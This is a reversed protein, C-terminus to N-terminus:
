AKGPTHLMRELAPGMEPDRFSFGTATLKEPIARCSVLLMENAMQGLALHLAFAPASLIAPRKLASALARTLETNRVPNPAVVNVPGKLTEEEVIHFVAALLDSLAVWSMWERGNGLKAGLGLRFLPLMQKLAGGFPTFVVGFRMHVVRIGAISAPATAHEWAECVESLFGKGAPANEGLVEDGRSGYFGSASASLLVKPPRQLRALALALAGTPLTRSNLITQKYASTWRHGSINAGALHVVADFGELRELDAFPQAADPEWLITGPRAPAQGKAGHRLPRQVPVAEVGRAQAFALLAHGIMGTAGTVLIRRAKQEQSGNKQQAANQQENM